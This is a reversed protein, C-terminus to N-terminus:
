GPSNNQIWSMATTKGVCSDGMFVNKSIIMTRKVGERIVLLIDVSLGFLAAMIRLTGTTTKAKGTKRKSVAKDTVGLRQALDKQTM